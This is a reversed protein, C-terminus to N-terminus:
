PSADTSRHLHSCFRHPRCRLPVSLVFPYESSETRIQSVRAEPAVLMPMLCMEDSYASSSANAVAVLLQMGGTPLPPKEFRYAQLPDSTEFIGLENLLRTFNMSVEYLYLPRTCADTNDQRGQGSILLTTNLVGQATPPSRLPSDTPDLLVNVSNFPNEELVFGYVRLWDYNSHSQYYTTLQSGIPVRDLSEVHFSRKEADFWYRASYEFDPEAYDYSAARIHYTCSARHM